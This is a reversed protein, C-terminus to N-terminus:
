FCCTPCLICQTTYDLKGHDDVNHVHYSYYYGPREKSTPNYFCPTSKKGRLNICLSEEGYLQYVAAYISQQAGSYEYAVSCKRRIAGTELIAKLSIIKASPRRWISSNAYLYVVRYGAFALGGSLCFSIFIACCKSCRGKKAGGNEFM